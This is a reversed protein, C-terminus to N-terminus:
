KIWINKYATKIDHEWKMKNDKILNTLTATIPVKLGDCDMDVEPVPVNITANAEKYGKAAIPTLELKGNTYFRSKCAVKFKMYGISKDIKANLDVRIPLKANISKDTSIFGPVGNKVVNISYVGFEWAANNRNFINVPIQQELYEQVVVNVIDKAFASYSASILIITLFYVKM